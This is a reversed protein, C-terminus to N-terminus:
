VSHSRPLRPRSAPYSEALAGFTPRRVHDLHDDIARGIARLGAEKAGYVLPVQPVVAPTVQTLNNLCIAFPSDALRRVCNRESALPQQLMRLEWSNADKM